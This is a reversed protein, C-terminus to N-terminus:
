ETASPTATARWRGARFTEWMSTLRTALLYGIALTLLGFAGDLWYHNATVVICFVTAVPYLVLLARAWWKRTLPWMVLTCWTAWACHLSPMAAYQNSIAKLTSDDFSWLGGVEKLTDVFGYNKTAFVAGGYQSLDNLLRPPMLPFLSFGILALATTCALTNRWRAFRDRRVRYLWVFAGITVIFHATGYYINWFRIFWRAGLFVHQVHQEFFLGITREFAIVRKANHFAHAPSVAASGFQNRVFSYLGYFALIYAVERWWRLGAGPARTATETTQM